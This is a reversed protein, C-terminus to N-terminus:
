SFMWFARSRSSLNTRLKIYFDRSPRYLSHHPSCALFIKPHTKVERVLDNLRSRLEARDIIGEGVEVLSADVEDALHIAVTDGSNLIRQLNAVVWGELERDSSKGTLYHEVKDILESRLSM